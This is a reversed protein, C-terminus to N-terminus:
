RLKAAYKEARKSGMDSYDIIEGALDLTLESDDEFLYSFGIVESRFILPRKSLFKM